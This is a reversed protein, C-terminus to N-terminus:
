GSQAPPEIQLENILHRLAILTSQSLQLHVAGIDVSATLARAVVPTLRLGAQCKFQMSDLLSRMTLFKYECYDVSLQGICRLSVHSSLVVPQQQQQQQGHQARTAYENYLARVALESLDLSVLEAIQSAQKGGATNSLSNLKLQVGAVKLELHAHLMNAKDHQQQQQQQNLEVSDVLTSALLSSAYVYRKTEHALRIRWVKAFLLKNARLEADEDSDHNLVLTTASERIEFEKVLVFQKSCENLYELYCVLGITASQAQKSTSTTTVFPLPHIKLRVLARRTEYRWCIYSAHPTM